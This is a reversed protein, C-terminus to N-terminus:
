AGHGARAGVEAEVNQCGGDRAQMAVTFADAALMSGICYDVATRQCPFSKETTTAGIVFLSFINSLNIAISCGSGALPGDSLSCSIKKRRMVLADSLFLLLPCFM